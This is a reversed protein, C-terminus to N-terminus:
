EPFRDLYSRCSSHITKEQGAPPVLVSAIFEARQCPRLGRKAKTHGLFVVAGPQPRVHLALQTVESPASTVLISLEWHVFVQPCWAHVM